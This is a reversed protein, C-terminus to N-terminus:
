LACRDFRSVRFIRLAAAVCGSGHYDYLRHIHAEIRVHSDAFAREVDLRFIASRMVSLDVGGNVYAAADDVLVRCAVGLEIGSDLRAFLGAAHADLLLM